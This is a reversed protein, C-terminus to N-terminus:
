EKHVYAAHLRMEESTVEGVLVNFKVDETYFAM